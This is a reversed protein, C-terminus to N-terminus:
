TSNLIALTLFFGLVKIILVFDLFVSIGPVPRELGKIGRDRELFNWLGKQELGDRLPRLTSAVMIMIKLDDNHYREGTQACPM